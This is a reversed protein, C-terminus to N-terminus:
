SQKSSYELLLDEVAWSKAQADTSAIKVRFFNGQIERTDFEMLANTRGTGEVTKAETDPTDRGMGALAVTVTGDGGGIATNTDMFIAARAVTQNYALRDTGFYGQWHAAFATTNDNVQAVYDQPDYEWLGTSSAIRMVPNATTSPVFETMAQVAGLGAVTWKSMLLGTTDDIIYIDDGDALWVQHDFSFHGVVVSARNSLARITPTWHGRATNAIGQSTLMLWAESSLAHVSNATGVAGQASPCGRNPDVIRPVLRGDTTRLMMLVQSDTFVVIRGAGYAAVVPAAPMGREVVGRWPTPEITRSFAWVGDTDSYGELRPIMTPKDPLSFEIDKDALFYVAQSGDFAGATCAAPEGGNFRALWSSKTGHLFDPDADIKPSSAKPSEGEFYTKFSFVPNIMRETTGSTLYLRVKDYDHTGVNAVNTISIVGDGESARVELPELSHQPLSPVGEEDTVSNYFAYQARYEGEKAGTAAALVAVTPNGAPRPLGAKLTTAFDGTVSFISGSASTFYLRGAWQYFWGATPRTFLNGDPGQTMRLIATKSNDLLKFGARKALLGDRITVNFADDATGPPLLRPSLETNMEGFKARIFPM